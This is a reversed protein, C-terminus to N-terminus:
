QSTRYYKPTRGTWRRFARVFSATESFGLVHAIQETSLTAERLYKLALEMRVADVIASFTTQERKLHRRLTRSTLGLSQAVTDMSSSLAVNQILSRRVQGSVGDKQTIESLENECIRVLQNFTLQNGLEVKHELWEVGVHFRNRGANLIIEDAADAPLTYASDNSYRVEIRRSTFGAGMVDRHLSNYIGLQLNVLFEYFEKGAYSAPVPEFGWGEAGEDQVFEMSATPAALFHYKQAFEATERYDVSCLVAYGYLGYSSVHLNQGIEYPIHPHWKRDSINRFAKLLQDNSIRLDVDHLQSTEIGTDDFMHGTELGRRRLVDLAANIKAVNHVRGLM